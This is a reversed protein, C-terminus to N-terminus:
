KGSRVLVQFRTNDLFRAAPPVQLHNQFVLLINRPLLLSCEHSFLCDFHKGAFASPSAQSADFISPETPSSPVSSPLLFRDFITDFALGCLLFVGQFILYERRFSYVSTTPPQQIHNGNDLLTGQSPFPLSPSSPDSSHRSQNVFLRKFLFFDFCDFSAPPPYRNFSSQPRNTLDRM